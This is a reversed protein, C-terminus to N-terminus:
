HVEILDSAQVVGGHYAIVSFIVPTAPAIVRAGGEIATCHFPFVMGDRSTVEGVGVEIDFASVTGRRARLMGPSLAAGKAVDSSSASTAPVATNTM